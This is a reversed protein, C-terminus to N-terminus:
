MLKRRLFYFTAASLCVATGDVPGALRALIYRYAQGITQIKEAEEDPITLDFAEEIEMVLEVTDLGMIVEGTRKSRNAFPPAEDSRTSGGRACSRSRAPTPTSTTRCPRSGCGPDCRGPCPPSSKM